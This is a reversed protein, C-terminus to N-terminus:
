VEAPRNGGRQELGGFSHFHGPRLNHGIRAPLQRGFLSSTFAVSIGSLMTLDIPLHAGVPLDNIWILEILAGMELGIGPQGCLWGVLPGTVIPRSFMFQGVTTEDLSLLAMALSITFWHTIM